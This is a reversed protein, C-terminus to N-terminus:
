NWISTHKLVAISHSEKEKGESHPGLKVLLSSPINLFMSSELSIIILKLSTLLQTKEGGGGGRERDGRRERGKRRKEEGKREEVEQERERGVREEKEGGERRGERAERGLHRTVLKLDRAVYLQIDIDERHAVPWGVWGHLDLAAQRPSGDETGERQHSM